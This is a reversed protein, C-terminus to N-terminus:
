RIPVEMCLGLIELQPKDKGVIRGIPSGSAGAWGSITHHHVFEGEMGATTGELRGLSIVREGPLLCDKYRPSAQLSNLVGARETMSQLDRVETLIPRNKSFCSQKQEPSLAERQQNIYNEWDQENATEANCSIAFARTGKIANFNDITTDKVHSLGLFRNHEVTKGDDLKFIAIDDTLSYHLLHAKLNDPHADIPLVTLLHHFFLFSSRFERKPTRHQSISCLGNGPTKLQENKSSGLEDFHACTIFVGKTLFFGSLSDFRFEPEKEVFIVGAACGIRQM